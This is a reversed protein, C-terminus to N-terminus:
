PVLPLISVALKELRRLSRCIRWPLGSRSVRRITIAYRATFRDNRVLDRLCNTSQRELGSALLEAEANMRQGPRAESQISKDELPGLLAVKPFPSM